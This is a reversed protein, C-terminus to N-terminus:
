PRLQAFLGNDDWWAGRGEGVPHQARTRGWVARACGGGTRYWFDLGGGGAGAAPAARVKVIRERQEQILARARELKEGLQRCEEKADQLEGARVTSGGGEGDGGGGEGGGGGGARGGSTLRSITQMSAAKACANIAVQTANLNRPDESKVSGRM